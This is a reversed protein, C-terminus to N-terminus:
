GHQSMAQSRTPPRIPVPVAATAIEQPSRCLCAEHPRHSRWRHRGDASITVSRTRGSREDVADRVRTVLAAAMTALARSPPDAQRRSVLQTALVPWSADREREHEWLCALCATHGPLVLPGVSARRSELSVVVHAVDARMLARVVHPPTVAGALIVAESGAEVADHLTRRVPAVGASRLADHAGLVADHPVRDTSVLSVERPVDIERLVPSLRAVFDAAAAPDAGLAAAVGALHGAPIGGALADLLDLQWQKPDAIVRFAPRSGIQIARDDRWLVPYAPDLELLPM